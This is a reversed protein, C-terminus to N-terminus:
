PRWEERYGPRDAYVAALFRLEQKMITWADVNVCSETTAEYLRVTARKSECEALVRAPDHRAIHTMTAPQGQMCCDCGETDWLVYKGAVHGGDAGSTTWSDGVDEDSAAEQAVAEDEAVCAMLWEALDSM